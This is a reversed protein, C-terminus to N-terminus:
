ALVCERVRKFAYSAVDERGYQQEGYSANILDFGAASMFKVFSDCTFYWYHEDVRYHRSSTITQPESFIPITVVAYGGIEIKRLPVWFFPFHELSDWFTVCKWSQNFDGYNGTRKLWDVSAKNVDYGYAKFGCNSQNVVDIFHGAGCGVDILCEINDCSERVFDLRFKNISEGQDTKRYQLYKRFYKEDYTQNDSADLWGVNTDPFWVLTEKCMGSSRIARVCESVKRYRSNEM